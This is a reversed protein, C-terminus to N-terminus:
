SSHQSYQPVVVFVRDRMLQQYSSFNVNSCKFFVILDLGVYSIFLYYLLTLERLMM